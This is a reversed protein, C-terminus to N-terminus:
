TVNTHAGLFVFKNEVPRSDPGFDEESNIGYTNECFQYNAKVEM